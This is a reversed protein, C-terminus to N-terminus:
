SIPQDPEDIEEEIPEWGRFFAPISAGIWLALPNIHFDDRIFYFPSLSLWGLL